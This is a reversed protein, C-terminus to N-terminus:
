RCDSVAQRFRPTARRWLDRHTRSSGMVMARIAHGNGRLESHTQHHGEVEAFTRSIESEVLQLAADVEAQQRKLDLWDSAYLELTPPVHPETDTPAGVAEWTDRPENM